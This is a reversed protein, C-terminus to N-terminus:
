TRMSNSLIDYPSQQQWAFAEARMYGSELGRFRSVQDQLEYYRDPTQSAHAYCAAKKRSEMRTIDVYRNPSFQMTDEGDSVEYYYLAFKRGSKQWADYTLMSIARHDRHNDVMWHTFVADPAEANLRQAFDEYRINDVIAAGNKQGAYSPRGGLLECARKAEALRTAAPTPPWAGDNLYLLVVDHGRETLTAITGGCGYEPDGPHGGTVVIKPKHTDSSATITSAASFALAGSVMGGRVILSRRTLEM